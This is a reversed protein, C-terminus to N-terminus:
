AHATRRKPLRRRIRIDAPEASARAAELADRLAEIGAALRDLPIRSFWLIL